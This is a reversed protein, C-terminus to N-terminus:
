NSLSLLHGLAQVQGTRTWRYPFAGRRSHQGATRSPSNYLLGLCSEGVSLLTHGLIECHRCRWVGRRSCLSFLKLTLM